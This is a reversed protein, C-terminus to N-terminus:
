EKLYSILADWAARMEARSTANSAQTIIAKLDDRVQVAEAEAATDGFDPDAADAFPRYYGRARRKMLRIVAAKADALSMEALAAFFRPEFSRDPPTGDITYGAPFYVGALLQLGDVPQFNDILTQAQEGEYAEVVVGDRHTCAKM